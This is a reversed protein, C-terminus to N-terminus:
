NTLLVDSEPHDVVLYNNLQRIIWWWPTTTTSDSTENDSTCFDFDIDIDSRTDFTNTAKLLQYQHRRWSRGDTSSVQYSIPDLIFTVQGPLWYPTDAYNCVM